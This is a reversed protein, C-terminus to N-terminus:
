QAVEDDVQAFDVAPDDADSALRYAVQEGAVADGVLAGLGRLFGGVSRSVFRSRISSTRSRKGSRTKAKSSNPGSPIRGVAPGVVAVVGHLSAGQMGVEAPAVGVGTVAVDQGCGPTAM